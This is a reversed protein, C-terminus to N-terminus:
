WSIPGILANRGSDGDIRLALARGLSVKPTEVGTNMPEEDVLM